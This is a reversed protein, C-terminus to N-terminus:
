LRVKLLGPAFGLMYVYYDSQSHIRIIEEVTKGEIRAIEELDLAYEGEYLVPIETVIAKPLAALDLHGASQDIAEKLQELDATLPDYHIALSRYTPVLEGIGPLRHAELAGKLAMVKRNVEMSIENEFEVLLAQDGVNHLTYM